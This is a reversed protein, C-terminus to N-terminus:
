GNSLVIQNLGQKWRRPLIGLEEDPIDMLEKYLDGLETKLDTVAEAETDGFGSANFEPLRAVVEEEDYEIIAVLPLRLPVELSGLTLSTVSTAYCTQMDELVDQIGRLELLIREFMDRQEDASAIM